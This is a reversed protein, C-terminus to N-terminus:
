HGIATFLAILLGTVAATAFYVASRRRKTYLVRRMLLRQLVALVVTIGIAVYVIAPSPSGAERAVGAVSGLPEHIDFIAAVASVAPIVSGRSNPGGAITMHVGNRIHLSRRQYRGTLVTDNQPRQQGRIARRCTELTVRPDMMM